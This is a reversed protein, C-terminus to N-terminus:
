AHVHLGCVGSTREITRGGREKEQSLERSGQGQCHSCWSRFPIHNVMHKEVEERSPAREGKGIDVDAGEDEGLSITEGEEENEKENGDEEQNDRRM